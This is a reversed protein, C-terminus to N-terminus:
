ILRIHFINKSKTWNKATSTETFLILIYNFLPFLLFSPLLLNDEWFCFVERYQGSSRPLAQWRTLFVSGKGSKLFVSGKYSKLFVSGKESQSLCFREWKQSLCFREWKVQEAVVSERLVALNKEIPNYKRSIKKSKLFYKQIPTPGNVLM